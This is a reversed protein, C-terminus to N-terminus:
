HREFNQTSQKWRVGNCCVRGLKFMDHFTFIDALGGVAEGRLEKNRGRKFMRREYRGKRRSM